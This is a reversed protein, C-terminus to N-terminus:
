FERPPQFEKIEVSFRVNKYKGWTNLNKVEELYIGDPSDRRLDVIINGMLPYRRAFNITLAILEALMVCALIVLGVWIDIM